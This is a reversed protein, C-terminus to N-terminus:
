RNRQPLPLVSLLWASVPTGPVAPVRTGSLLWALRDLTVTSPPEFVLPIGQSDMLCGARQPEARLRAGGGDVEVRLALQEFERLETGKKELVAPAIRCGIISNLGDLWEQAITGRPSVMAVEAASVRNNAWILEAVELTALGEARYPLSATVAGLDVGAVRGSAHGAWGDATVKAEMTGTVVAEPGLQWGELPSQGLVAIITAMPLPETLTADVAWHSRDLTGTPEATRVIRIEDTTRDPTIIRVARDGANAVCEVRVPQNNVVEGAATKWVLGAINIVCNRPFRAPETLWRRALTALQSAFAPSCECQNLGLRVETPTAEFEVTGLTASGLRVGSLRLCGPQRHMLSEFAVETNLLRTVAAAIAERHAVSNRQMAWAVLGAMPVLCLLVFGVRVRWLRTASQEVFM